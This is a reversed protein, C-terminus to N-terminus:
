TEFQSTIGGTDLSVTYGRRELDEKRKRVEEAAQFVTACQYHRTHGYVVATMRDEQRRSPPVHRMVVRYRWRDVVETWVYYALVM